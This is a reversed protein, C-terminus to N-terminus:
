TYYKAGRINNHNSIVKNQDSTNEQQSQDIKNKLISEVQQFRTMGAKLGIACAAELRDDGYREGLRLLGLCARYSQQVFPRSSMMHDIFDATKEGIKRAWRKMREPGWEAHARHNLPMHEKLTTYGYKKYSREHIAIRKGDCFCEVTKGTSRIDVSKQLYQYPVSYFHNDFTFHYDIHIKAKSWEEFYYRTEPLPKLAPKDITEFLEARTTNMKQFSQHNIKSLLPKIAVNIEAVSTFTRNRLVAIIQRTIINVANEVKAKDKPEASRAPVIAFGYHESFRQYNANIDPDYIHAKTVGSKLNDPVVMESVGGFYEWMNVHSSIWDPLTQTKTAECYIFQSAGLAGVFIQCEHIEGTAVDIWEMTAGAYDVFTKEGAKHIQHMVPDITKKYHGLRECFQSYSIGNSNADRYERWLLRLTVGKKRNEKIIYEWDPLARKETSPSVPLFLKDYLESESFECPLPWTIKALKARTLYDFVTSVSINLSQAINRYSHGLEYRQRLIESIKKM